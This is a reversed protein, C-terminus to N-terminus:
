EILKEYANLLYMTTGERQIYCEAKANILCSVGENLFEESTLMDLDSFLYYTNNESHM